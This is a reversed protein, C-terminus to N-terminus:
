ELQTIVCWQLTPICIVLFKINGHNDTSVYELDDLPNRKKANKRHLM